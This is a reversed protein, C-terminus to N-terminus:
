PYTEHSPTLKIIVEFKVSARNGQAVGFRGVHSVIYRTIHFLSLGHLVM